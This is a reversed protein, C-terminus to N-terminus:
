KKFFGKFTFGLQIEGAPNKNISVRVNEEFRFFRHNESLLELSQPVPGEACEDRRRRRRRRRQM